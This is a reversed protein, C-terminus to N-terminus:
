FCTQTKLKRQIKQKSKSIPKYYKDSKYYKSKKLPWGEDLNILPHDRLPDRTTIMAVLAPNMVVRPERRHRHDEVRRVRRRRHGGTMIIEAPRRGATTIMTIVGPRAGTMTRNVAGQRSAGGTTTIPHDTGTMVATATSMTVTVTRARAASPDM